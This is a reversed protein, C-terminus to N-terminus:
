CLRGRERGRECLGHRRCASARRGCARVRNKQRPWHLHPLCFLVIMTLGSVGVSERGRECLGHRRCASARVRNKKPAAPWFFFYCASLLSRFVSPVRYLMWTPELLVFCCLDRGLGGDSDLTRLAPGLSFKFPLFAVRFVGFDLTRLGSPLM